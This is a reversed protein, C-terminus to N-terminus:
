WRLRQRLWTRRPAAMTFLGPPKKTSLGVTEKLSKLVALGISGAGGSERVIKAVDFLEVKCTGMISQAASEPILGVSAQARALSAQFRLMAAVFNQEGFLALADPTFLLGEFRSSVSM